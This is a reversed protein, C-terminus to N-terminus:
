TGRINKFTIGSRNKPYAKEVPFHTTTSMMVECEGKLLRPFIEHRIFNLRMCLNLLLIDTKSTAVELQLSNKVYNTRGSLGTYNEAVRM